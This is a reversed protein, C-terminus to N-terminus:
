AVAESPRLPMVAISDYALSPYIAEGLVTVTDPRFVLDLPMAGIRAAFDAPLMAPDAYRAFTMHIMDYRPAGGPPPPLAEALQRRLAWVAENHGAVAVVAAPLARLERFRLSGPPHSRCWNELLALVRQRHARWYAPKDFDLRVPTLSYISVHLVPAPTLHLARPTGAANAIAQLVPAAEAQLAPAAFAAITYSLAKRGWLPDAIFGSM